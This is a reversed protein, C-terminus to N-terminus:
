VGGGEPVGRELPSNLFIGEEFLPTARHMQDHRPTQANLCM